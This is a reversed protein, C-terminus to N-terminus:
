KQLVGSQCDKQRNRNVCENFLLGYQSDVCVVWLERMDGFVFVLEFVVLWVWQTHEQSTYGAIHSFSMEM